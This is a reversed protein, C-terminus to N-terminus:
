DFIKDGKKAGRTYIIKEPDSVATATGGIIPWPNRITHGGVVPAGMERCFDGFGKLM